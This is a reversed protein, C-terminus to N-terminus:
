HRELSEDGLDFRFDDLLNRFTAEVSSPSERLHAENTIPWSNDWFSCLLVQKDKQLM